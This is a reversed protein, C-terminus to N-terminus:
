EEEYTTDQLEGSVKDVYLVGQLHDFEHCIARALMGTGEMEFVQMNRDYARVKVYDPRTVTGSKGPLSLCGEEGTQEGSMELIEPNIFVLPDTEESIDIVVIKRLVGVQPAALGVGYAEYMTDFMDDILEQLKPTMETVEKCKKRLVPEGMKRINRIAM